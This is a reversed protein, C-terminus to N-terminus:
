RSRFVFSVCILTSRSISPVPLRAIWVGSGNRVCMSSANARWPTNSRVMWAAPSMSISPWWVTSSM